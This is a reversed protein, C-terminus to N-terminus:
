GDTIEALGHSEQFYVSRKAQMYASYAHEGYPASAYSLEGKGDPYVTLMGGGSYAVSMQHARAKRFEHLMAEKRTVTIM